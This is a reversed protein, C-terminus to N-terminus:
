ESSLYKLFVIFFNSRAIDESYIIYRIKNILHFGIEVLLAFTTSIKQVLLRKVCQLTRLTVYYRLPVFPYTYLRDHENCM